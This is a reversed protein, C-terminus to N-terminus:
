AATQQSDRYEQLTPTRELWDAQNDSPFRVAARGFARCDNVPNSIDKGTSITSEKLDADYYSRLRGQCGHSNPHRDGYRIKLLARDRIQAVRSVSIGYRFGIEDLKLIPGGQLRYCLRLIDAQRESLLNNFVVDIDACLLVQNIDTEPGNYSDVPVIDAITQPQEGSHNLEESPVISEM